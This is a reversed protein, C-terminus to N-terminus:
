RLPITLVLNEYTPYHDSTAKSNFNQGGINNPNKGTHLFPHHITYFSDSRDFDFSGNRGVEKVVQNESDEELYMINNQSPKTEVVARDINLDSEDKQDLFLNQTSFSDAVSIQHIESKKLHKLMDLDREHRLFDSLPIPSKNSKSNIQLNPNM